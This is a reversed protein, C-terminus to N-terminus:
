GGFILDDWDPEGDRLMRLIGRRCLAQADALLKQNKTEFKVHGSHVARSTIGYAKRLTKYIAKRGAPDAGLHWAGHLALRFSLEAQNNLYLSELAIRLDIFRDELRASTDKTRLWRAAVIRIKSDTEALANLASRFGSGDIQLNEVYREDLSTVGTVANTSTSAFYGRGRLHSRGTSWTGESGTLRFRNLDGYENWSFAIDAHADTEISMALCVLDPDVGPVDTSLSAEVPPEDTPRFLAPAASHDLTMVVRGLYDAPSMKGSGPQNDPLNSPLQDTSLPLSEIQVGDVSSVPESLAGKTNVITRSQYSISEGQTWGSLLEAVQETGLLTAGRALAKAFTDVTSEGAFIATATDILTTRRSFESGIPFAHGIRDTAPDIYEGLEMRIGDILQALLDDPIVVRASSASGLEGAQPSYHQGVLNHFEDATVVEGPGSAYTTHLSGNASKTRGLDFTVNNVVADLLEKLQQM